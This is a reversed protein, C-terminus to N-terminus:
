AFQHRLVAQKRRMTFGVAGLGFIMLLWTGPEPVATAIGSFAFGAPSGSDVPINNETRFVIASVAGFRALNGLNLDRPSDFQVSSGDTIAGVIEQDFSGRLFISTLRNDAWFSGTLSSLTTIEPLQFVYSYTGESVSVSGNSNPGIWPASSDWAANPVTAQAAIATTVGGTAQEISWAGTDSTSVTTAANAPCAVCFISSIITAYALRRQFMKLRWRANANLFPGMHAAHEVSEGLDAKGLNVYRARLNGM